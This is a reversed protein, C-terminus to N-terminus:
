RPRRLASRRRAELAPNPRRRMQAFERLLDVRDRGGPWGHEACWDLRARLWLGAARDRRWAEFTYRVPGYPGEPTRNRHDDERYDEPDVQPLWVAEDYSLLGPPPPSGQVQRRRM